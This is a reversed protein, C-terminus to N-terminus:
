TRDKPEGCFLCSEMTKDEELDYICQGAVSTPCGWESLGVKHTELGLLKGLESKVNKKETETDREAAQYSRWAEQQTSQASDMKRLAASLPEMNGSEWEALSEASWNSEITTM